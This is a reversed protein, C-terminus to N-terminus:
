IDPHCTTHQATPCPRLDAGCCSHRYFKLPLALVGEQCSPLDGKVYAFPIICDIMTVEHRRSGDTGSEGM